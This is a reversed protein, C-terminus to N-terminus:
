PIIQSVATFKKNLIGLRNQSFEWSTKFQVYKEWHIDNFIPKQPYKIEWRSSEAM